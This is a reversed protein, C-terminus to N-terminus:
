KNSSTDISNIMIGAVRRLRPPFDELKPTTKTIKQMNIIKGNKNAVVLNATDIIFYM